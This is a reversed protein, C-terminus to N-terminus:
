FDIDVMYAVLIQIPARFVHTGFLNNKLGYTTYARILFTDPAVTWNPRLGAIIGYHFEFEHVTDCEVGPVVGKQCASKDPLAEPGIAGDVRGTV